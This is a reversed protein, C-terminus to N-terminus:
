SNYKSNNECVKRYLFVGESSKAEVVQNFRNRARPSYHKIGTPTVQSKMAAGHTSRCTGHRPSQTQVTQRHVM